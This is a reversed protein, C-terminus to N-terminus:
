KYIGLGWIMLGPLAVTTSELARLNKMKWDPTKWIIDSTFLPTREHKMWWIPPAICNEGSTCTYGMIMYKRSGSHCERTQFHWSFTYQHLTQFSQIFTHPRVRMCVWVCVSVCVATELTVSLFPYDWWMTSTQLTTWTSLNKKCSQEKRGRWNPGCSRPWRRHSICTYISVTLYIYTKKFFFIVAAFNEPFLSQRINSTQRKQKARKWQQRQRKGWHSKRQTATDKAPNQQEVM